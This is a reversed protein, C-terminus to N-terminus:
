VSAECVECKSRLGSFDKFFKPWQEVLRDSQLELDSVGKKKIQALINRCIYFQSMNREKKQVYLESETLPQVDADMVALLRTEPIVGHRYKPQTASFELWLISKTICYGCSLNM